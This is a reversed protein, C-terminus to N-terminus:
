RRWGVIYRGDNGVHRAAICHERARLQFGRNCRCRLALNTSLLNRCQNGLGDILPQGALVVMAQHLKVTNWILPIRSPADRAKGRTFHQPELLLRNLLRQHPFVLPPMGHRHWCMKQRAQGGLLGTRYPVNTQIGPDDPAHSPESSGAFAEHQRPSAHSPLLCAKLYDTRRQRALRRIAQLLSRANRALGQM